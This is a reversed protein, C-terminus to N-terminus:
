GLQHTYVLQGDNFTLQMGFRSSQNLSQLMWKCDNDSAHQLRFKKIQLPILTMKVLKLSAPDLDIFYMLSLDGRFEEYGGIGEYDNIFDGCGYFIPKDHYIEIPRPHHSSHGFIIDVNATDILSHAFTQFSDSVDYGWNSGWHISFVILDNPGRHLKINKQISILTELGLSTLYYIGARQPKAKWNAPIGSSAMGAAFVLVRKGTKLDIIAPQMAQMCNEGAGSFKIGANKLTLMTELLGEANWDLIHNNALTCINIGASRLADIHLPNCRYHIDKGPDFDDCKTIATELNIIKVDPKLQKWVALADGWIYDMSVPYDIKGNLQEALSLYERADNAYPEHLQPKDPHPLIQDIGRGIM